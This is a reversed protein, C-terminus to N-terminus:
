REDNLYKPLDVKNDICDKIFSRFIRDKVKYDVISNNLVRGISSIREEHEVKQRLAPVDYDEPRLLGSKLFRDYWYIGFDYLSSITGGEVALTWKYEFNRKGIELWYKKEEPTQEKVEQKNVMEAKLHYQNNKFYENIWRKIQLLNLGYIETGLEGKMGKLLIARIRANNMWPHRSFEEVVMDLLISIEAKTLKSVGTQGTIIEFKMLEEIIIQRKTPEQKNKM